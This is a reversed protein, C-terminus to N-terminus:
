KRRWFIYAVGSIAYCLIDWPDYIYLSSKQPLIFEFFVSFMVVSFLVLIPPLELSPRNKIKRICWLTFTNVLFISLLDALYSSILVPFVLDTQKLSYYSAYILALVIFLPHAITKM